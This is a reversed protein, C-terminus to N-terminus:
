SNFDFTLKTRLRSVSDTTQEEWLLSTPANWESVTQWDTVVVILHSHMHTHQTHTHASVYPGWAAGHLTGCQCVSVFLTLSVLWTPNGLTHLHTNTHPHLLSFILSSLLRYFCREWWSFLGLLGTYWWCKIVTHVNFYWCKSRKVRYNVQSKHSRCVM